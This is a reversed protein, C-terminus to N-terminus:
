MEKYSGIFDAEVIFRSNKSTFSDCTSLTLKRGYKAPSLNILEESADARRVESVRYIYAMGGGV